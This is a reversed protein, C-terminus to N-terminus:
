HGLIDDPRIKRIVTVKDLFDKVNDFLDKGGKGVLHKDRGKGPVDFHRMTVGGPPAHTIIM